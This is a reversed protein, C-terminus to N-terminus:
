FLDEVFLIPERPTYGTAVTIMRLLRSFWYIIQTAVAVGLFM